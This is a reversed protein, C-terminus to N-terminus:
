DIKRPAPPPETKKRLIEAAVEPRMWGLLDQLEQARGQMWRNHVDDATKNNQLSISFLRTHLYTKIAAFDPSGALNICGKLFANFREPEKEDTIKPTVM